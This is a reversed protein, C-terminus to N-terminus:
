CASRLIVASIKGAKGYLIRAQCNCVDGRYVVERMGSSTGSGQAKPQQWTIGCGQQGFAHKEGRQLLAKADAETLGQLDAREESFEIRPDVQAALTAGSSFHYTLHLAGSEVTRKCDRPPGVRQVLAEYLPGTEIRQKLSPYEKQLEPSVGSLDGSCVLVSSQVSAAAPTAVPACAGLACMGAIALIGM